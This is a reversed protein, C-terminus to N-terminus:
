TIREGTALKLSVFETPNTGGRWGTFTVFDDDIEAIEIEDEFLERNVWQVGTSGVAVAGQFCVAVVGSPHGRLSTVPMIPLPTWEESFPPEMLYGNGSVIVIVASGPTGFVGSIGHDGGEVWATATAGDADFELVAGSALLADTDNIRQLGDVWPDFPVSEEVVSVTYNAEFGLDDIVFRRTSM